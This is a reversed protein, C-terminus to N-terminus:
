GFRHHTPNRLARTRRAVFVESPVSRGITSVIKENGALMEDVIAVASQLIGGGNDRLDLLLREMGQGQLEDVAQIFEPYTSQAFRSIRIYGTIEDVM